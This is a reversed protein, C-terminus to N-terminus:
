QKVAMRILARAAGLLQKAPTDYLRFTYRVTNIARERLTPKCDRRFKRTTM